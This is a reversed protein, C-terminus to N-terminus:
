PVFLAPAWFFRKWRPRLETAGPLGDCALRPARTPVGALVLTEVKPISTFKPKQPV